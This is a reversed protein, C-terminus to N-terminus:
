VNPLIKVSDGPVDLVVLYQWPFPALNVNVPLTCTTNRREHFLKIQKNDCDLILHLIDDTEIKSSQYGYIKYNTTCRGHQYVQDCGFGDSLM